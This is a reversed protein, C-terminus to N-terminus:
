FQAERTTITTFSRGTLAPSELSLTGNRPQAYGRCYSIAVWQLIKTQSIGHVSSDPMSCDQATSLRETMNSEKCGWPSYGALSKQGRHNELCSYQLPNGPGGEPSRGLGPISGLDGANCTSEKGDSGGPDSYQLGLIRSHTALGKELSDELGLFWVPTEQM